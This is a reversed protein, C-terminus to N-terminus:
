VIRGARGEDVARLPEVPWGHQSSAVILDAVIRPHVPMEPLSEIRVWLPQFDDAEAEPSSLLPPEGADSEDGSLAALYFLQPNGRYEIVAVLAGAEVALGLEERVERVVAEHETEGPEVAGGPFLYYTEAPRRREILAVHSQFLIIAAARPM